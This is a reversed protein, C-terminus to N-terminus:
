LRQFSIPKAALGDVHVGFFSKFGSFLLFVATLLTDWWDGM